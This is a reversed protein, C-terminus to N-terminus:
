IIKKNLDKYDISMRLTREEKKVLVVWCALHNTSPRIHGLKQLEEITREIGDKFVCPPCYSTM